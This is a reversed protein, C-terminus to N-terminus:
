KKNKCNLLLIFSFQQYNIKSVSRNANEYKHSYTKLEFIDNM